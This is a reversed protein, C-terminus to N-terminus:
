KENLGSYILLQSTIVVEEGESLGSRIYTIQNSHGQLQIERIQFDGSADKVVVFYRNDDFVLAESPISVLEGATENKLRIVVSMEPKLKLENNPMVIRAKLVKEEPDFVQSVANITAPFVEGPYSLSTIDVDMGERVFQINGAYVNAMIWVSSLDAIVFLPDSDASVPSGSPAKKEVIYGSMPAKISFTGRDKNLGYSFLDNKIKGFSAQAQKLRAQAELLEKESLMNDEYMASATKMEREAVKLDSESATYEFQMSSLDSSRIDLLTQGQQVKDGLLFYTRDIIGSVLPVYSIVKDPAYEVKGALILEEQQRGPVAKITKVSSLFAPNMEAQKGATEPNNGSCSNFAFLVLTFLLLPIKKITM